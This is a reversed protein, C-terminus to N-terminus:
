KAQKRRKLYLGALSLGMLALTCPEPVPDPTFPDSWGQDVSTASSWGQPFDKNLTNHQTATSLQARLPDQPTLGTASQWQVWPIAVDIFYDANGGFNSGDGTPQFIRAYDAFPGDWTNTTSLSVDGYTPGTVTAQVLEVVHDGVDDLQLVWDVTGPTNDTDFSFQYTATQASGDLRMRFMLTDDTVQMSGNDDLYWYGAAYTSNGEIDLYPSGNAGTYDNDPDPLFGGGSTLPHWFSNAPWIVAAHATSVVALCFLCAVLLTKSITM